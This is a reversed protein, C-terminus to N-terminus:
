EIVRDARLLVASPFTIALTKATKLNIVLEFLSAQEVPLDGPKAGKLIKDVLLASRRLQDALSAGFTFLAGADAMQSRHGVVPVRKQSALEILRPRLNFVLAGTGVPVIAEVRQAFLRGVAADFDAANAIEAFAFSMGVSPGLPALAQLDPTTTPDSPDSLFGVRKVGPVIERLLELRKPTLSDSYSSIGTVNGGPRGLSAVLGIGVPDWVTGFVIPLTQTAQKAAVTSPTVPAYILEPKRAVLEAALAPLREHQDDAYVRDYVITRGEVWGLRQMEDFFPRLTVEEKARTSPMLVGVRHMGSAANQAWLPLARMAIAASIAYRLACRRNM